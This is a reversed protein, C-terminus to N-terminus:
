HMIKTPKTNECFSMPLKPDIKKQLFLLYLVIEVNFQTAVSPIYSFAKNSQRGSYGHLQLLIVKVPIFQQCYLLGNIDSAIELIVRKGIAETAIEPLCFYCLIKRYERYTNWM